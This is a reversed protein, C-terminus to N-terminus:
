AVRRPRAAPRSSTKTAAAVLVVFPDGASRAGVRLKVEDFGTQVLLDRLQKDAFGPWEDGLRARVWSEGHERLDLILV